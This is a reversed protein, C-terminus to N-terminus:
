RYMAPMMVSDPITRGGYESASRFTKSATEQVDQRNFGRAVFRRRRDDRLGAIPLTRPRDARVDDCGLGGDMALPAADHGLQGGSLVDTINAADNFFGEGLRLRREVVDAGDRYRLAGTEDARQEDAHRERFRDGPRATERDHGHMVQGSM